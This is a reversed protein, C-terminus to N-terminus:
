LVSFPCLWESLMTVLEGLIANDAANSPQTSSGAGSLPLEYSGSPLSVADDLFFLCSLVLLLVCKKSTGILDDMLSLPATWTVVCHRKSFMKWSFGCSEENFSHTSLCSAAQDCIHLLQASISNMVWMGCGREGLFCFYFFVSCGPESRWWSQFSLIPDLVRLSVPVYVGM